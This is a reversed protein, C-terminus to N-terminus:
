AYKFTFYKVLSFHYFLLILCHSPSQRSVYTYFTSLSQTYVHMYFTSLLQTYMYFTSLLQTYMYFTSFSQAYMYLTSLSQRYVYMYGQIKVDLFSQLVFNDQLMAARPWTWWMSRKLQKQSKCQQLNSIVNLRVKYSLLRNRQVRDAIRTLHAPMITRM